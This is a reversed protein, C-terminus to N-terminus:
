HGCTIRSIGGGAMARESSTALTDGNLWAIGEGQVELGRADCRFGTNVPSFRTGDFRFFYIYRYTRVAVRGAQGLSADTVLFSGAQNSPIPLTQIREAQVETRSWASGPVRFVIPGEASTKTILYVDQAPTV